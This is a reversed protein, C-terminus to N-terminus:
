DAKLGPDNELLAFIEAPQVGVVKGDRWTRSPVSAQVHRVLLLGGASWALPMALILSRNALKQGITPGNPIENMGHPGAQMKAAM